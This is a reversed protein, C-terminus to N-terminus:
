PRYDHAEKAIQLKDLNSKIDKALNDFTHNKLKDVNIILADELKKYHSKISKEYAPDYHKELIQEVFDHMKNTKILHEWELFVTKSLNRKLPQLSHLLKSPNNVFYLYDKLLIEVRLARDIKLIVCDSDWMKYILADPVQIDGIKKSESEVFVSKTVDFSKLIEWIKSDFRKQPKQPKDPIWGLVSGRHNAVNELDLIQEGNNQLEKLVHSKGSGTPGCIVCFKLKKCLIPIQQRIFKRYEKYGGKLTHADWGVERLVTAMARSRQGGRWCYILPRWSRPQHSLFQSIHHAINRAVLHGGTIKAKFPSIENYAKGVLHREKNSLVPLNISKPVHDLEYEAPSRVDIITDFDEFQSPSATYKKMQINFDAMRLTSSM